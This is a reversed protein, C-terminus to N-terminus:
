PEPEGGDEPDPEEGPSAEPAEDEEPPPVQRGGPFLVVNQPLPDHRAEPWPLDPGSPKGPDKGYEALIEELTYERDLKDDDKDKAM